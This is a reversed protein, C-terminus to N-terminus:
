RGRRGRRRAFAGGRAGGLGRGAEAAGLALAAGDATADVVGVGVGVSDVLGLVLGVGFGVFGFKCFAAQTWAQACFTPRLACASCAQTECHRYSM